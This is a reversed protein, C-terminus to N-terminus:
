RGVSLVTVEGEKREKGDDEEKMRENEVPARHPHLLAGDLPGRRQGETSADLSPLLLTHPPKLPEKLSELPPILVPPWKRQACRSCCYAHKPALGSLGSITHLHSQHPCLRPLTCFPVLPSLM